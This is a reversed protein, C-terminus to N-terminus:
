YYVKHCVKIKKWIKEWHWNGYGDWVKVKVFKKKWFCEVNGYGYGTDHYPEYYGGYGGFGFNLHINKASATAAAGGMAVAMAAAASLGILTKRIM